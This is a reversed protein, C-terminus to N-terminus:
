GFLSPVVFTDVVERISVEDIDSRGALMTMVGQLWTVMADMSVDTRLLGAGIARAFLPGFVRTNIAHLPSDAGTLLANLRDRPMAAALLGFESDHAIMAGAVVQDAVAATVDDADLHARAELQAGLERCRALLALEILGDRGSVFRYLYQRSIGVAASVDELRTRSVGNEVFLRRAAAVIRTLLDDDSGETVTATVLDNDSNSPGIQATRTRHFGRRAQALV